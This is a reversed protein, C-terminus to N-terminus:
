ATEDTPEAEVPDGVYRVTVPGALEAWRQEERRRARERAAKRRKSMEIRGGLSGGIGGGDSSPM